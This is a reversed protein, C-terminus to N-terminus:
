RSLRAAAERMARYPDEFAAAEAEDPPAGPEDLHSFFRYRVEIREGNSWLEIIRGLQPPDLTSGTEIEVYSGRDFVVNEHSHGALHLAVNEFSNLRAVWGQPSLASGYFPRLYRSPHHTAVIVIAGDSAAREVERTLFLSEEYSVSGDPYFNTPQEILPLASNLVILRVGDAVDTAYWSRELRAADFGHGPPLGTSALHARVFADGTLYARDPNPQVVTPPSTVGSPAPHAPSVPGYAVGATPDLAVPLFLGIRDPPALPSVARGFVEVIPFVGVAFRDHNGPVAYWPISAQRGHVGSRYLGAATFPAHPDLEPPPVDAPDRDDVGTLPDIVGGDLVDIFWRIENHQANDAADGTHILFDITEGRAHIRNVARTFGDLLQTSYAEQPRWAAHVIDGAWTLRAPSEEDVIQADSIHAFRVLLRYDPGPPDTYEGPLISGPVSGCGPLLALALSLGL